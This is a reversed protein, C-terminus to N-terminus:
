PVHRLVYLGANIDSVIILENEVHVGVVLPATPFFVFPDAVPPPVFFATEDPSAPTALNVVRIGDSYWALYATGNRVFPGRISFLGPAVPTLTAANRTIFRGVEAPAAPNRVNWIRLHGWSGDAPSFDEDATLLLSEHQAFSVSHAGGDSGPPYLTRGVMRPSAPDNIDLLVAGADRYALAAVTGARNARVGRAVFIQGPAPALVAGALTGWHSVQVPHRPDTVDVIRVDGRGEIVESYPVTAVLYARAGRLFMHLAQVGRAGTPGFPGGRWFALHRPARPDTVDWLDVGRPANSTRVCAQIGAALLDGAFHPTEIRRVVVDEQSTGSIAAVSSVVQPQAPDSLTVIRIGRAPCIAPSGAATGYSGM